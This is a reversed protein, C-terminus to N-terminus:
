RDAFSASVTQAIKLSKRGPGMVMELGGSVLIQGDTLLAVAHGTRARNMKPMMTWTMSEPQFSEVEALVAGTSIHSGGTVVVGLGPAVILGFGRALPGPTSTLVWENRQLDYVESPYTGGVVLVLGNSLQAAAHGHRAFHMSRTSRSTRSALELIEVERLVPGPDTGKNGGTILVRGDTLSVAAHQYRQLALDKIPSWKDEKPDYVETSRLARGMDDNGGVVLVRGDELLSATHNSRGDRLSAGTTWSNAQPDFLECSKTSGPWGGAVLVRGDGLVVARHGARAYKMPAADDWGNTPSFIEAERIEVPADNRGGAILVRGDNLTTATHQHRAHRLDATQIWGREPSYTECLVMARSQLHPKAFVQRIQEALDQNDMVSHPILEENVSGFVRTAGTRDALRYGAHCQPSVLGCSDPSEAVQRTMDGLTAIVRQPHDRGRSVAKRLIEGNRGAVRKWSALRCWGCPVFVLTQNPYELELSFSDRVSGLSGDMREHNSISALFMRRATVGCLVITLARHNSPAHSIFSAANARVQELTSALNDNTSSRFQEALWDNTQVRGISGLGCYAM